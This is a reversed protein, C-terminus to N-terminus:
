LAACDVLADLSIQWIGSQGTVYVTHADPALHAGWPLDKNIADGLDIPKGWQDGNRFSICLRGLVAKVKGYDLIMFSQDPAVAPDHVSM